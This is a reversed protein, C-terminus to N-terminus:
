LSLLLLEVDDEDQQREFLALLAGFHRSQYAAQYAALQGSWEAWTRMAALDVQQPAQGTAPADALDAAVHSGGLVLPADVEELAEQAQLAALAASRSGFVLLRNGRQVLYRRRGQSAGAPSALLPGFGQLVLLAGAFGIGQLALARASLSM